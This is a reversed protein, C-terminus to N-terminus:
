EFRALAQRVEDIEKMHLFESFTNLSQNELIEIVVSTIDAKSAAREKITKHFQDYTTQQISQSVEMMKVM